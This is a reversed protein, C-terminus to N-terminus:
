GQCARALETAKALSLLVHHLYNLAAELGLHRRAFRSARESIAQAAVDNSVAWAIRGPLDALDGRLPIFHRWPKLTSSCWIVNHSQQKLVLSASMLAWILRNSQTTGDLDVLYKYRLHEEIAAGSGTLNHAPFAKHLHPHHVFNSVIKADILDPRERSLLALRARPWLPWNVLSWPDCANRRRARRITAITGPLRCGSDAGRFFAVPKRTSWPSIVNARAVRGATKRAWSTMYEWMPVLVLSGVRVDAPRSYVLVPEGNAPDPREELENQSILVDVTPVKTHYSLLRIAAVVTSVITSTPASGRGCDTIGVNHGGDRVSIRCIQKPLTHGHKLHPLKSRPACQTEVMRSLDLRIQNAMWRPAPTDVLHALRQFCCHAYHPEPALQQPEQGPGWCYNNYDSNCCFDELLIDEAAIRVFHERESDGLLLGDSHFHRALNSRAFDWCIRLPPVVKVCCREPTRVGDWCDLRLGDSACCHSYTLNADPLWCLPNGVVINDM